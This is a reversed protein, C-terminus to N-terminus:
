RQSAIDKIRLMLNTQGASGDLGLQDDGQADGTGNLEGGTHLGGVADNGDIGVLRCGDEVNRIVSDDAVDALYNGGEYCLDLLCLIYLLIVAASM